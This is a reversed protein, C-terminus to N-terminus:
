SETETLALIVTVLEEASRPTDTTQIGESRLIYTHTPTTVAITNAGPEAPWTYQVRGGPETTQTLGAGAAYGPQIEDAPGITVFLRRQGVAELFYAFQVDVGSDISRTADDRQEAPIDQATLVASVATAFAQSADTSASSISNSIGPVDGMNQMPESNAPAVTTTVTPTTAAPQESPTTRNSVIVVGGVVAVAVLAGTMVTVPRITPVWGAVGTLSPRRPRSSTAAAAIKARNAAHNIDATDAARHLAASIRTDLELDNTM